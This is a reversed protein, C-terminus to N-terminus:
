PRRAATKIRLATALRYAIAPADAADLNTFGLLLGKGVDHAVTLSSLATVALGDDQALRALRSDDAEAPTRLLIHLGGPEADVQFGDGLTAELATILAQRRQGYLTRMRRLHRGFHGREIFRALVRQELVPLGGALLRAARLFAPLLEGPPVVYGLRLGPHLTKSFSGCHIVRDDRDLSKLSPLPRGAYHFEGDYDDELVWANADSAWSLLDLRRPLSLPVGLPSQHAPTVLALRARPAAGRGAAVRLGQGDVRIPVLRAGTAELAQRAPPYGPDEVWVADGPKLLVQRTLALAGQFGATIVVRDASSHLGRAMGLYAAVAQRLDPLGAPDPYGMDAVGASRAAQVTLTSWTKRPFADLAPVGMRLPRDPPDAVSPSDFSLAPQVPPASRTKFHPSIVTGASGRRTQLAGEGALVAYAADVTGRAISLQSALVRAAPLRAGPKLTGAAVADRLRRAIQLYLPEAGSPDLDFALDM